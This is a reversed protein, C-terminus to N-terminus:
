KGNKGGRLTSMIMGKDGILIDVDVEYDINLWTDSEALKPFKQYYLNNFGLIDIKQKKCYEIIEKIKEKLEDSADKSFKDIDDYTYAGQNASKVRGNGSFKLVIGDKKIESKINYEHVKYSAKGEILFSNTNKEMLNILLSIDEEIELAIKNNVFVYNDLLEINKDEVKVGGIVYVQNRLYKRLLERLNCTKYEGNRNLSQIYTNKVNIGLSEGKTSKYEKLSNVDDSLFIYFDKRIEVNRALFDLIPELGFNAFDESIFLANMHGFYQDSNSSNRANDIADELSSGVAHVFNSGDSESKSANLLEIDILYEGDRYDIILSSVIKMDNLEVYDYCGTLLFISLILIAMKKM